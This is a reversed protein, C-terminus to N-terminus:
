FLVNLYIAVRFGDKVIALESIREVLPFSVIGQASLTGAIGLLGLSILLQVNEARELDGSSESLREPDLIDEARKRKGEEDSGFLYLFISNVFVQKRKRFKRVLKQIRESNRIM